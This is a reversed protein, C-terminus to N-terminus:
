EIVLARVLIFRQRKANVTSNRLEDFGVSCRGPYGRSPNGTMLCRCDSVGIIEVFELYFLTYRSILVVGIKINVCTVFPCHCIHRDANIRGDSNRFEVGQKEFLIGNKWLDFSDRIQGFM